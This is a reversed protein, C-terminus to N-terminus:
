EDRARYQEELFDVVRSAGKLDILGETTLRLKARRSSNEVLNKIELLDLKWEGKFDMTGIQAAVGLRGLQEYNEKQNDVACAVGTPVERAIFEFSSTSATTFVLDVKDAWVDLEPGLSHFVFGSVRPSAIQSNSFYHIEINQDLELLIESIARTFGFSDAGGGVILVRLHINDQRYFSSKSICSRILLFNPGSLIKPKSYLNPTQELSPRLEVDSTYKPSIDDRISLIFSWNGPRIFESQPSITYSDIVLLDNSHNNGFEEESQHLASFGLTSVRATVWDLNIISGVFVCDHGRSIAEEALVSSRMVHGTGIQPSADARFVIRM